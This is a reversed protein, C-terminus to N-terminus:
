DVVLQPYANRKIVGVESETFSDETMDNVNDNGLTIIILQVSRYSVQPQPPLLPGIAEPPTPLNELQSRDSISGNGGVLDCCQTLYLYTYNYVARWTGNVIKVHSNLFFCFPLM